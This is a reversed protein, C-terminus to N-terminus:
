RARPPRPRDGRQGIAACVGVAVACSGGLVLLREGPALVAAAAAGLELTAEVQDDLNQVYPRVRDPSWIRTTLDGLDRVECGSAALSALLGADRLAAPAREVGVCYAGTSSPVGLVTVRM